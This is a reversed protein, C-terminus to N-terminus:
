HAPQMVCSSYNMVQFPSGNPLTGTMVNADKAKTAEAVNAEFIIGEGRKCVLHGTAEDFCGTLVLTAFV